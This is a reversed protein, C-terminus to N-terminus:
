SGDLQRRFAGAGIVDAGSDRVRRALDDDSTAVVDGPAALRAIDDDAANPGRRSAFMVNARDADIDFPKGDLVVTVEDGPHQAAFEDLQTVLRKM